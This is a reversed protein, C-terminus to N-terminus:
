DFIWYEHVSGLKRVQLRQLQAKLPQSAITFPDLSAKQGEAGRLWKDFQNSLNEYRTAMELAKELRSMRKQSNERLKGFHEAMSSLKSEIKLKEDDDSEAMLSHGISTAQDLTSSYTEIDSLIPQPVVLIITITTYM